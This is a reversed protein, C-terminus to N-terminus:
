MLRSNSTLEAVVLFENTPINVIKPLNLASAVIPARYEEPTRSLLRDLYIESFQMMTYPQILKVAFGNVEFLYHIAKATWYSLHEPPKYHYPIPGEADVTTLVLHGGKKLLKSLKKLVQQPDNVHELVGWLTIFDYQAIPLADISNFVRDKAKKASLEVGFCREGAIQVFEGNGCGFDLIYSQKNCGHLRMFDLNRQANLATIASNARIDSYQSYFLSLEEDSPNPSTYELGCNSCKSIKYDGVALAYAGAVCACVPCANVVHNAKNNQM